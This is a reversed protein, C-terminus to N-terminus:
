AHMQGSRTPLYRIKRPRRLRSTKEIAETHNFQWLSPMNVEGAVRHELLKDVGRHVVLRWTRELLLHYWDDDLMKEISTELKNHKRRLSSVVM